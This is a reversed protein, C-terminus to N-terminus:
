AAGQDSARQEKITRAWSLLFLGPAFALIFSSPYFNFSSLRFRLDSIEFKLNKGEDKM